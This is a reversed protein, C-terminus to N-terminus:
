DDLDMGERQGCTHYTPPGGRVAHQLRASPDEWMLHHLGGFLRRVSGVPLQSLQYAMWAVFPNETRRWRKELSAVAATPDAAHIRTVFLEKMDSGSPSQSM